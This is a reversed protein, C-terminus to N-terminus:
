RRHGRPDPLGQHERRDGPQDPHRRLEERGGSPAPDHPPTPVPSPVDPFFEVRVESMGGTRNFFTVDSRWVSDNQGFAHAVGVLYAKVRGQHDLTHLAGPRRYPQRDDLRLRHRRQRQHRPPHHLPRPQGGGRGGGGCQGGSNDLLGPCRHRLPRPENGDADLVVAKLGGIDRGSLNAVGLNSRYDVNHALGTLYLSQGNGPVVPVAPVYQGYTGDPTDNYTRSMIVPTVGGGEFGFRLAGKSGDLPIGPIVTLVDDIIVTGKPPLDFTVGPIVGLNNRAEQLFDLTVTVAATGPNFLRLDTKWTTDFQGDAHAAAPVVYDNIQIVTFTKTSTSSGSCNTVQLRVTYTGPEEFAYTFVPSTSQAVVQSNLTVTWEWSEAEDGGGAAVGSENVSFTKGAIRWVAQGPPARM